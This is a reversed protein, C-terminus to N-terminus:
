LSHREIEASIEDLIRRLVDQAEGRMTCGAANLHGGGGFKSCVASADVPSVTRLSVRFVGGGRPRLTVGALVGDIRVPFSSIGDIEEETVGYLELVNEPIEIVACRGDCYFALSDYFNKELMLRGRSKSDFMLKNILAHEAGCDIMDAAARHAAATVNSFRFCGTDTALGTFIANAINKTVPVGLTRVLERMVLCTAPAEEDILTKAAYGSNSRHHDICLDVAPYKEALSGLLLTGAVDCAVVFGAEFKKPSYDGFMFRFHAPYGDECEVRATKGLAELAYLLAFSAGLTDGDPKKHALIAINDCGRLLECTEKITIRM